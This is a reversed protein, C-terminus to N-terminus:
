TIIYGITGPEHNATWLAERTKSRVIGIEGRLNEIKVHLDTSLTTVTDEIKAMVMQESAKCVALTDTPPGAM